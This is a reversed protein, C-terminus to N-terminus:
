GVTVEEGDLVSLPENPVSLPENTTVHYLKDNAVKDSWRLLELSGNYHEVLVSCSEVWDGCNCYLIDNLQTIEPRHIHGCIVGDVGLRAAEFSVAAEFNSIYQVANKVKSKLFAALSWYPLGLKRRFFNVLYNVELLWQYARIGLFSIVKSYRVVSDFKDGHFVLFRQGDAKTHIVEHEIQVHGLLMGCYDRLLEDHNGPVYIVKTGRKAKALITRIVDNHAQPWHPRKKLM